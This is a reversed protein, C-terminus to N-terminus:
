QGDGVIQFTTTEPFADLVDWLRHVVVVRDRNLGSGANTSYNDDVSTSHSSNSNILGGQDSDSQEGSSKFEHRKTQRRWRAAIDQFLCVVVDEALVINCAMGLISSKNVAATAILAIVQRNFTQAPNCDWAMSKVDSLTEPLYSTPMAANPVVAMMNMVEFKFVDVM